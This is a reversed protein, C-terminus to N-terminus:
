YITNTLIYTNRYTSVYIYLTIGIFTINIVLFLCLPSQFIASVTCKVIFISLCNLVSNWIIAFFCSVVAVAKIVSKM